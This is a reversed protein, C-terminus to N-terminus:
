SAVSGFRRADDAAYVAVALDAARAAHLREIVEPVLHGPIACTVENNPMGTRVRSLMCGVSMAVEDQEKAIAIIHCQPKGELRMGPWADHLMMQQKGNLRLLVVSPEVPTEKLPGYVIAGPRDRVATIGQMAKPTVWGSECLAAVDANHAVEALSKLGHTVCGVSCNGHDEALTAFTRDAAKIWFVCGAPVAGTRGDPTPEPASAAYREIGEPGRELFSIAIPPAFLGLADTLEAQLRGYDQQLM